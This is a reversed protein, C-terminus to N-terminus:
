EQLTEVKISLNLLSFIKVQRILWWKKDEPEMRPQSLGIIIANLGSISTDEELFWKITHRSTTMSSKWIQSTVVFKVVLSQYVYIYYTHSSLYHSVWMEQKHPHSFLSVPLLEVSWSSRQSLFPFTCKLTLNKLSTLKPLTLISLM